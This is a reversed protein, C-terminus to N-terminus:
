DSFIAQWICQGPNRQMRAAFRNTMALSAFFDLLADASITQM